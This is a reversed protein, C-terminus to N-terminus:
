ISRNIFNRFNSGQKMAQTWARDARIIPQPIRKVANVVQSFGAKLEARTDIVEANHNHVVATAYDPFVKSGKPLNVLTDVAPTKYVSGDPLQVAESKGGDGVIAPGGPHNETGEAYRPIPQALVRAIQVAGLAGIVAALGIGVPGPFQALAKVVAISTNQVIETVARAKEFRAKQQDLQRQRLELQQRKAAARAEIVAIADARDQANTITQNAVEIDKQKQAELLDINDQVANKQREIQNTFIDFFLGELESALSVLNDKILKKLEKADKAAKDIAEKQKKSFDDLIKQLEKPIAGSIEKALQETNTKFNEATIAKLKAGVEQALRILANNKDNEIKLREKATLDANNLDFAAQAEILRKSDEGYQILNYLRDAYSRKEDNARLLDFEKDLEINAKIIEFEAKRNRELLELRKKERDKADKDAKDAAEKAKRREEDVKLLRIEAALITRKRDNDTQREWIDNVATSTAKITSVLKKDAENLGEIMAEPIDRATGQFAAVAEIASRSANEQFLQFARSDNEKAKILRQELDGADEILGVMQTRARLLSREFNETFNIDIQINSLRQLFEAQKALDELTKKTIDGQARLKDLENTLKESAGAAGFLEKVFGAIEKGFSQILLFAIPLLANFSLLSSGMIKLAKFNSGVEGRLLKFQDLLMPLNNSIASIGTAFSNAFAPAERIVQNLAFTAQTYNGVNRQFQGVSGDVKKLIDGYAKADAVAQAAVPHHEGLQLTLNKAKLTADNYAKSLQLYDNEADALLKQERETQKILKEKEKEANKIVAAEIQRAKTSQQLAKEEALITKTIAEDTKAEALKAKAVVESAKAEAAKQKALLTSTRAAQQSAKEAAAAAKSMAINVKEIKEVGKTYDSLTKTNVNFDISQARAAKIQEITKNVLDAAAKQQATLAPIDYISDIRDVSAM